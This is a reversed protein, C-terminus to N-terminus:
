GKADCLSVTRTYQTTIFGQHGLFGIRERIGFEMKGLNVCPPKTPVRWPGRGNGIPSQPLPAKRRGLGELDLSKNNVSPGLFRSGSRQPSGTHVPAGMNATRRFDWEVGFGGGVGV